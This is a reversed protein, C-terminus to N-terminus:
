KAGLGSRLSPSADDTAGRRLAFRAFFRWMLESADVSSILPGTNFRWTVDVGGPWTHGGGPLVYLVVPAGDAGTAPEYTHVECDPERTIRPEPACRNARVWWAITDPISRHPVPLVQNSGIGGHFRANEDLLGHFHIVPVPRSPRPGDVGMDGAVVGVAAIRESLECALRYCLMGGNSMGCAYVRAPDVAHLVALDDLLASIFGVDDVQAEVAYGCCTGANWTKMRTRGTGDPYVVLFGHRDAVENMRSQERQIEAWGAGGHLSLVVALAAGPAAGAPEHVLYRRQRGAHQLFFQRDLASSM